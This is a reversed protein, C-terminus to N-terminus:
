DADLRKELRGLTRSVRPSACPGLIARAESVAARVGAHDGDADAVLARTMALEAGLLGPLEGLLQSGRELEQRAAATGLVTLATLCHWHGRLRNPVGAGGAERSEHLLRAASGVDGRELAIQAKLTLAVSALGGHRMRRTWALVMGAHVDASPLELRHLYLRAAHLHTDNLVAAGASRALQQARRISDVAGDSGLDLLASNLQAVICTERDGSAEGLALARDLAAAAETPRCTAALLGGLM